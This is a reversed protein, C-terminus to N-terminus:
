AANSQVGPLEVPFASLLTPVTMMHTLETAVGARIMVTWRYDLDSVKVKITPCM